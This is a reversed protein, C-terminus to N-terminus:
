KYCIYFGKVGFLTIFLGWASLLTFWTQVTYHLFLVSKLVRWCYFFCNLVITLQDFGGAAASEAWFVSWRIRNGLWPWSHREMYGPSMTKLRTTGVPVTKILGTEQRRDGTEQRTKDHGHLSTRPQYPLPQQPIRCPGRVEHCAWFPGWCGLRAWPPSGTGTPQGTGTNLGPPSRIGGFSGWTKKQPPHPYYLEPQLSFYFTFLGGAMAEPAGLEAKAELQRNWESRGGGWSLIHRASRSPPTIDTRHRTNLTERGGTDM